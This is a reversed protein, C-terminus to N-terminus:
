SAGVGQIRALQKGTGLETLIADEGLCTVLIRGSEDLAVTGGTYIPQISQEIDFTTKTAVRSAM